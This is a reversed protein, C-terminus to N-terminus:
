RIHEEVFPCLYALPISLLFWLLTYPLCIQGLLNFPANAYSWVNWNLLLNVVCGALFEMVTILAGGILAKVLIPTNHMRTFVFFLAVVCLGGLVFMTWHSYGRWFIELLFYGGGGIIFLILYKIM